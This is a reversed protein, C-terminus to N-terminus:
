IKNIEYNLKDFPTKGTSHMNRCRTFNEIASFGHAIERFGVTIQVNTEFPKWGQTIASRQHIFHSKGIVVQAHHLFCM